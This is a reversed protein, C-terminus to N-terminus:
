PAFPEVQPRDEIRETSFTRTDQKDNVWMTQKDM